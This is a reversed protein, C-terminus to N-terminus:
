YPLYAHCGGVEIRRKLRELEHASFVLAASMDEPLRGDVLYEIQLHYLLTLSPLHCHSGGVQHREHWGHRSQLSSSGADHQSWSPPRSSPTGGPWSSTYWAGRCATRMHGMGLPPNYVLIAWQYTGGSVIEGRVQHMKLNVVVDIQNLAGQKEKQFETIDQPCM